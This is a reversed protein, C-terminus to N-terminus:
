GAGVAGPKRGHRLSAWLLLWSRRIPAILVLAVLYAAMVVAIGLLVVRADADLLPDQADDALLLSRSEGTAAPAPHHRGLREANEPFGTAAVRLM